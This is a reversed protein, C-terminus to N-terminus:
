RRMLEDGERMKMGKPRAMVNHKELKRIRMEHSATMMALRAHEMMHKAPSM